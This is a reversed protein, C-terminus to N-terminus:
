GSEPVLFEVPTDHVLGERALREEVREWFQDRSLVTLGLNHFSSSTQFVWDIEGLEDTSLGGTELRRVVDGDFSNFGIGALFGAASPWWEEILARASAQGAELGILGPKRTPWTRLRHREAFPGTLTSVDHWRTGDWLEDKLFLRATATRQILWSIVRGWIPVLIRFHAEADEYSLSHRLTGRDGLPKSADPTPWEDAVVGITWAVLGAGLTNDLRDRADPSVLTLGEFPSRSAGNSDIWPEKRKVMLRLM